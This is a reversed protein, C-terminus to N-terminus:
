ACTRSRLCCRAEVDSFPSDRDPGAPMIRGHREVGVGAVARESRVVRAEVAAEEDADRRRPDIATGHAGYTQRAAFVAAEERARSRCLHAAVPGAQTAARLKRGAIRAHIGDRAECLARDIQDLVAHQFVAADLVQGFPDAHRAPVQPSNEFALEANRRDFVRLRLPQQQCLPQQRVRLQRHRLDRARASERAHAAEVRQELRAVPHRGAPQARRPTGPRKRGHERELERVARRVIPFRHDREEAAACDVAHLSDVVVAIRARDRDLVAARPMGTVDLHPRM